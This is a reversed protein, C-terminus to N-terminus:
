HGPLHMEELMRTLYTQTLKTRALSQIEKEHRELFFFHFRSISLGPKELPLFVLTQGFLNSKKSIATNKQFIKQHVYYLLILRQCHEIHSFQQLLNETIIWNIGSLCEKSQKAM